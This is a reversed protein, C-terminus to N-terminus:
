ILIDSDGAESTPKDNNLLSVATGNVPHYTPNYNIYGGEELKRINKHYTARWRIRALKMIKRRSINFPNKCGNALWVQCLVTYLAIHTGTLEENSTVKSLFDHMQNSIDM